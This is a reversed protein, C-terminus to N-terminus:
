TERTVGWGCKKNNCKMSSYRDDLVSNCRPCRFKGNKKFGKM